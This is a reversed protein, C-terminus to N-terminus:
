GCHGQQKIPGVRGPIKRWDRSAPPTKKLETEESAEEIENAISTPILGTYKAIFEEYTLDTFENVGLRYSFLGQDAKKNHEEIILVNKEFISRRYTEEQPSYAKGYTLKHREWETNGYALAVFLALLLLKM